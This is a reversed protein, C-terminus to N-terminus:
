RAAALRTQDALALLMLLQASIPSKEPSYLGPRLLTMATPPTQADSLDIEAMTWDPFSRSRIDRRALIEIAQHRRDLQIRAFVREVNDREGEIVQVFWQPTHALCGTIDHRRNFLRAGTLIRQCEGAFAAADVAVRSRYTLQFHAM